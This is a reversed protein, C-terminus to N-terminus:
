NIKKDDKTEEHVSKVAILKEIMPIMKERMSLLEEMYVNALKNFKNNLQMISFALLIVCVSIVTEFLM